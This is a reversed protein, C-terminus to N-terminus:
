CYREAHRRRMLLAQGRGIIKDWTTRPEVECEWIAPYYRGQPITPGDHIEFVHCGTNNQLREKEFPSLVGPRVFWAMKTRM